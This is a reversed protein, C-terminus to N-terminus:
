MNKGNFFIASMSLCSSMFAYCLRKGKQRQDNWGRLLYEHNFDGVFGTRDKKKSDFAVVRAKLSDCINLIECARYKWLKSIRARYLLSNRFAGFLHGHTLHETFPIFFAWRLLGLQWNLTSSSVTLAHSGNKQKENCRQEIRMFVM